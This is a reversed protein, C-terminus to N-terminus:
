KKVSTCVATLNLGLDITGMQVHNFKDRCLRALKKGTFKSPHVDPLYPKCPGGFFRNYTHEILHLLPNNYNPTTLILVGTPKLVRCIERIAKEPRKVHEIVERMVVADFYDNVLSLQYLDELSYKRHPFNKQCFAISDKQNDIGFYKIGQEIEPTLWVSLGCGGDLVKAQDPLKLIERQILSNLHRHHAGHINWRNNLKKQIAQLYFAYYDGKLEIHM